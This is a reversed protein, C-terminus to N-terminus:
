EEIRYLVIGDESSLALCVAGNHARSRAYGKMELVQRAGNEPEYLMLAEPAAMLLLDRSRLGLFSHLEEPFFGPFRTEGASRWTEGEFELATLSLSERPGPGSVAYLPNGGLPHKLLAAGGSSVPLPEDAIVGGGSRLLAAGLTQGSRYILSIRDYEPFFLSLFEASPRVFLERLAPAGSQEHSVGHLIEGDEGEGVLLGVPAGTLLAPSYRKVRFPAEFQLDRLFRPGEAHCVLVANGSVVTFVAKGEPSVGYEVGPMKLYPGTREVVLNGATDLSFLNIEWHDQQDVRYWGYSIEQDRERFVEFAGAKEGPRSIDRSLAPAAGRLGTSFGRLRDGALTYVTVGGNISSVLSYDGIAAAKTEGLPLYSLEDWFGFGFLYISEGGDRGIFAVYRESGDSITRLARAELAGGDFGRAAHSVLKGGAGARLVRFFGEAIYPVYVGGRLDHIAQLETVLGTEPWSGELLAIPAGQAGLGMGALLIILGAACYKM